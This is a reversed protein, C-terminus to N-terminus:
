EQLVSTIQQELDGTAGTISQAIRGKRDIIYLQPIAHFEYNDRIGLIDTEQVIPYTIGLAAIAEPVKDAPHDLSVGIVELGQDHYKKYVAEVLISERRPWVPRWFDLM